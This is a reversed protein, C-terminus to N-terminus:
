NAQVTPSAIPTALIGSVSRGGIASPETPIRTIQAAMAAAAQQSLMRGNNATNNVNAATESAFMSAMAAPLDFSVPETRQLPPLTVVGDGIVPDVAFNQEPESDQDPPM